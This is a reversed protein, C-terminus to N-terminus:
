GDGSWFVFISDCGYAFHVVPSLSKKSFRDSFGIFSGGEANNLVHNDSPPVQATMQNFAVV